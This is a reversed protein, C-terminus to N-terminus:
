DPDSQCFTTSLESEFRQRYWGGEDRLAARGAGPLMIALALAMGSMCHAGNGLNRSPAIEVALGSTLLPFYQGKM